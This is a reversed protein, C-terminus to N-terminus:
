LKSLFRQRLWGGYKYFLFPVPTFALTIFALVSQGWGLGIKKYLPEAALALFAGSGNRVLSIAALASAAGQPGFMDMMYIQGAATIIVTGLGIFMTGIIPVIWQVGTAATWGYWFMGIPVAPAVWMMLILRREPGGGQHLMKDSLAAFLILGVAAGLGLGLYSLGSIGISWHYIGEFVSPFTAFLLYTMGFVLAMYLGILMVIPSLFLMRLPKILTREVLQFKPTPKWGAPRLDSNGTEKRLRAAKKHLLITANTERMTAMAIATIVGAFVLILYFTWRWGLSETVVGGIIPGLVPGLLPGATFAAMAVGREEKSLLDAITGGGCTQFSAMCSGSLCRFILFMPANTSRACGVTCALYLTSSGWYIPVRGSIESLPALVLPGLGSGLSPITVALTAITDSTIGFESVLSEAGPAFMTTALSSYLVSLSVLAINLIKHGKSWNRPNAPDDPNDWDVINPDITTADFHSKECDSDQERPLM